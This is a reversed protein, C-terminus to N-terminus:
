GDVALHHIVILLNSPRLAGRKFLAVRTLPGNQLDLSAQLSAAHQQLVASQEACPLHSLDFSEIRSARAHPARDPPAILQQWGNESKAFRLRLADHHVLLHELAREIVSVDLAEDVRLLRAQNYYHPEPQDQKFFRTQIATPDHFTRRRCRADILKGM